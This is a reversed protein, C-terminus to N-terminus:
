CQGLAFSYGPSHLAKGVRLPGVMEIILYLICKRLKHSLVTKGHCSTVMTGAAYFAGPFDVPMWLKGSPCLLTTSVAINKGRPRVERRRRAHKHCRGDQFTLGRLFRMSILSAIEM